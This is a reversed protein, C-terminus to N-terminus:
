GIPPPMDTNASILLTDPSIPEVPAADVDAIDINWEELVFLWDYLNSFSHHKIQTNRETKRYKVKSGISLAINTDHECLRLGLFVPKNNIM